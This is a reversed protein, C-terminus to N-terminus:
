HQQLRQDQSCPMQANGRLVELTSGSISPGALVPGTPRVAEM